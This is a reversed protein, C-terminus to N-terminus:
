KVIIESVFLWAAVGAAPRGSPIRGINRARVRVYRAEVGDLKATIDSVFPESEKGTPSPKLTAVVRFERADNSVAYEVQAPLYVGSGMEQLYRSSLAALRTPQGLDITADLDDGFYGQWHPDRYTPLALEGDTLAQGGGGPYRPDFPSAMTVPKGKALHTVSTEPPGEALYHKYDQYLKVTAPGGPQVSSWPANMLGPYQFCLIKEFSAYRVLDSVIHGIPRPVLGGKQDFGFVEMDLWLHAGAEDCLSQLLKAAEEGSLDGAAMRHFACPCVIDCHKLLKRWTEVARPVFYCNPALM